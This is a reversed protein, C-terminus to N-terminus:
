CGCNNVKDKAMRRLQHARCDPCVCGQVCAANTGHELEPKLCSLCARM